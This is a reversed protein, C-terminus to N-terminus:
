AAERQGDGEGADERQHRVDRQLQHADLGHEGHHADAGRGAVGEDLVQRQEDREEHERDEGVDGPQPRGRQDGEDLVGEDVHHDDHRDEVQRGLHTAPRVDERRGLGVHLGDARDRVLRGPHENGGRAVALEREGGQREAGRQGQHDVRVRDGAHQGGLPAVDDLAVHRQQRDMMSPKM